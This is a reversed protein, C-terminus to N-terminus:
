FTVVTLTVFSLIVFSLTVIFLTVFSHPPTVIGAPAGPGGASSNGGLTSNLKVGDMGNIGYYDKTGAGGLYFHISM